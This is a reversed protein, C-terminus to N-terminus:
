GAGHAPELQAVFFGLLHATADIVQPLSDPGGHGADREVRLLVPGPDATAAQMAAVYKRAHLPDVRDDSDAAMMLLPPYAVGPEIRHYPSYAHLTRTQAGDLAAGYEDIWFPGVGFRHYRVMDLLPVRCVVAGFLDPRQTSAAGVLLGGNSGGYIGLQPPRTFGEDVLWQGTALFDDFVNQKRDRRGADHWDEGYEGGGRLSAVAWVGGRQAWLDAV